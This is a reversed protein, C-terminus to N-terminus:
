VFCSRSQAGRALTSLETRLGQGSHRSLRRFYGDTGRSRGRQSQALSLLHDLQLPLGVAFANRYISLNCEKVGQSSARVEVSEVRRCGWPCLQLGRECGGSARMWSGMAAWAPVSVGTSDRSVGPRLPALCLRRKWSGQRASVSGDWEEGSVKGM